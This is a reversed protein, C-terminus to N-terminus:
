QSRGRRNVRDAKDTKDTKDAAGLWDGGSPGNPEIQTAGCPLLGLEDISAALAAIDGPDRRHRQGVVIAGIRWTITEGM